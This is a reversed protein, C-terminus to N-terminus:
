VHSWSTIEWFRHLIPGFNSPLRMSAKSRRDTGFDIVKCRSSRSRGFRWEQLFLLTKRLGGYFNWRLYLGMPRPRDTAFHLGIIRSIYPIHPYIRQPEEPLPRWSCLSIKM